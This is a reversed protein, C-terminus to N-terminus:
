LSIPAGSAKAVQGIRKPPSHRTYLEAPSGPPDLVACNFVFLDTNAALKTLNDLGQPDIDGSFTVSKGNYEIRYAVAPADGHHTAVTLVRIGDATKLIESPGSALDIPLDRADVDVPAGFTKVYSWAGCHGFLLEAFRTPSPYDGASRRV